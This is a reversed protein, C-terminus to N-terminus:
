VIFFDPVINVSVQTEPITAFQKEADRVSNIFKVVEVFEKSDISEIIKIGENINARPIITKSGVQISEIFKFIEFAFMDSILMKLKSSVNSEDKYKRLLLSNIKNDWELDPTKVKFKFNESEVTYDKESRTYNTDLITKLSYEKNDIVHINQLQQRLAIALTVRDVTNLTNLKVSLNQELINYLTTNFFLISLSQDVSTEIIAKQQALSLPKVEITEGSSPVRVKFSTKLKKIEALIDNFNETM